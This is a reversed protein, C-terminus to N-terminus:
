SKKRRHIGPPCTGARMCPTGDRTPTGCLGAARAHEVRDAPSKQALTAPDIVAAGNQSVPGGAAPATASSAPATTTSSADPNRGARTSATTDTRTDTRTRAATRAKTTTGTNKGTPATVPLPTGDRLARWQQRRLERDQAKAAKRALREKRTRSDVRLRRTRWSLVGRGSDYRFPGLRLQFPM